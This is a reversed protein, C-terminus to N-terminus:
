LQWRYPILAQLSMDAPEQLRCSLRDPLTLKLRGHLHKLQVPLTGYKICSLQVCFVFRAQKNSTLLGAALCAAADKSKCAEALALRTFADAASAQM